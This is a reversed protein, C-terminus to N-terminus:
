AAAGEGTTAAAPVAGPRDSRLIRRRPRDVLMDDLAQRVTSLQGHVKQRLGQSDRLEQPGVGAVVRRAEEVLQDLQENSNVNLQRFRDFFAQLNGVASDRFVKSQGGVGGSLRESLHGVLDSFEALFAQEALEVAEEFRAAVRAREQKYLEPRLRMLYQPPEAAPFEWEAAFLGALTPPYDRPDYLRGLRLRASEKLEGYHRELSEVAETLEERLQKMHRDFGEVQDQRILRLGPEPYPLTTGRWYSVMRGRVGTVARYAPHRTDLLKKAASLYQGEAGFGEAAEAKQGATLAKRVGLWTFSVRVAAAQARLRGAPASMAGTSTSM